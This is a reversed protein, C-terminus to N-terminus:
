EDDAKFKMQMGAQANHAALKEQMQADQEAKKALYAQYADEIEQEKDTRFQKCLDAHQDNTDQLQNKAEDMEEPTAGALTLMIQASYKSFTAKLLSDCSDALLGVGNILLDHRADDVEPMTALIFQEKEDEDSEEIDQLDIHFEPHVAKLGKLLPFLLEKSFPYIQFQDDRGPTLCAQAVKEIPVKEGGPVVEVEVSLLAEPSAKVCLNMLRYNFLAAYGSMKKQAESLLSMTNPRM